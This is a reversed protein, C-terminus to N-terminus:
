HGRAPSDEDRWSLESPSMGDIKGLSVIGFRPKPRNRRVEGAKAVVAERLIAALSVGRRRAEDELLALDDSDATVTTRRTM